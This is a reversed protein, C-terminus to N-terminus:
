VRRYVIHMDGQDASLSRHSAVAHPGKEHAALVQAGVYALLYEHESAVEGWEEAHADSHAEATGTVVLESALMGEAGSPEILARYTLHM